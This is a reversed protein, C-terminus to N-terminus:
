TRQAFNGWRLHCPRSRLQVVHDVSLRHQEATNWQVRWFSVHSCIDLSFFLLNVACLPASPTVLAVFISVSFCIPLMELPSMIWRGEFMEPYNCLKGKQMLLNMIKFIDGSNLSDPLNACVM